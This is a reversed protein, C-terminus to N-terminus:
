QAILTSFLHVESIYDDIPDTALRTFRLTVTDLPQFTNAPIVWTLTHLLTDTNSLTTSDNTTFAWNPAPGRAPYNAPAVNPRQYQYALGFRVSGADVTSKAVNAYFTLPYTTNYTPPVIFDAYIASDDTGVFIAVESDRIAAREVNPAGIDRNWIATLDLNFKPLSTAFFSDIFSLAEEVSSANGLAAKISTGVLDAGEAATTSSTIENKTFYLNDTFATNLQISNPNITISADAAIIDIINDTKILGAGADIGNAVQADVYQKTAADTLEIPSDVNSIRNAGMNLVGSMTGGDLNLYDSSNEDAMSGLGLTSKVEAANKLVWQTGNGVLFSGDVPSVSALSEISGSLGILIDDDDTGIIVGASNSLIGRFQAVGNQAIIFVDAGSGLTMGDTLAGGAMLVDAIVARTPIGASVDNIVIQDDISLASNVPLNTLDMALGIPSLVANGNTVSLGGNTTAQIVVKVVDSGNFALLGPTGLIDAIDQLNPNQGQVLTGIDNQSLVNNDSAPGNTWESGNFYLIHGPAPVSTSVDSLANLDFSSNVWVSGTFSLVQGSTATSVNVDFLDDLSGNLGGGGTDGDSATVIQGKSNVVINASTYSGPVVGTDDLTVSNQYRAM